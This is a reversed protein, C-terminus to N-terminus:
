IAHGDCDEAHDARFAAITPWATVDTVSYAHDDANTGLRLRVREAKDLLYELYTAIDMEDPSM